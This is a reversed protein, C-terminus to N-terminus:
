KTTNKQKNEDSITSSNGKSKDKLLSEGNRLKRINKAYEKGTILAGILNWDCPNNTMMQGWIVGNGKIHMMRM